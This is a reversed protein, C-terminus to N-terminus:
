RGILFLISKKSFDAGLSVIPGLKMDVQVLASYLFISPNLAGVLTVSISGVIRSVLMFANILISFSWRVLGGVKEMEEM